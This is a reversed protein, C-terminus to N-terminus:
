IKILVVGCVFCCFIKKRKMQFPSKKETFILSFLITTILLVIFYHVFFFSSFSSFFIHLFSYLSDYRHVIYVFCTLFLSSFIKWFFFFVYLSFYVWVSLTSSIIHVCLHIYSVSFRIYLFLSHMLGLTDRLTRFTCEM